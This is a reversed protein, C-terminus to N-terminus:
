AFRPPASCNLPLDVHNATDECPVDEMRLNLWVWDLEPM